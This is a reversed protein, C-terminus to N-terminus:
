QEGSLIDFTNSVTTPTTSPKTIDYRADLPHTATRRAIGTGSEERGEKM